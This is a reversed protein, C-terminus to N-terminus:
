ASDDGKTFMRLSLILVKTRIRDKSYFKELKVKDYQNYNKKDKIEMGTLISHAKKTKVNTLTPVSIIVNLKSSTLRCIQVVTLIMILLQQLSHQFQFVLNLLSESLIVFLIKITKLLTWSTNM